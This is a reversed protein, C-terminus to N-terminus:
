PGCQSCCSPQSPAGKWLLGLPTPFLRASFDDLIITSSALPPFSCFCCLVLGPSPCRLAALHARPGPYPLPNATTEAPHRCGRRQWRRLRPSPRGLLLAALLSLADSPRHRVLTSARRSGVWAPPSSRSLATPSPPPRM